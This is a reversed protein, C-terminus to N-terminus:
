SRVMPVIFGSSERKRPFSSATRDRGHIPRAGTVPVHFVNM